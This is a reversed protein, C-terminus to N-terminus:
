PFTGKTTGLMLKWKCTLNGLFDHEFSSLRDKWFSSLGCLLAPKLCLLSEQRSYCAGPFISLKLTLCFFGWCCLLANQLTWNDIGLENFAQILVQGELNWLMDKFHSACSYCLHLVEDKAFIISRWSQFSWLKKYELLGELCLLFYIFLLM